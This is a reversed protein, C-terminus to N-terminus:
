LSKFLAYFMTVACYVLSLAMVTNILKRHKQFHRFLATGVYIWTYIASIAFLSLGIVFMLVMPVSNYHPLIFSSFVTIGFVQNKINMFQNAMGMKVTNKTALADGKNEGGSRYVEYALWLLYVGGFVYMYPEVSPIFDYLFKSFSACAIFSILLAIFVGLTFRWVKKPGLSSALSMGMIINPGPSYMAAFIYVFFAVFNM